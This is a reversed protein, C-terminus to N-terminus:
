RETGGSGSDRASSRNVSAGAAVRTSALERSRDTVLRNMLGSVMKKIEVLRALASDVVRETVFAVDFALILEGELECGSGM